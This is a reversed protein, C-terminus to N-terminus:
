YSTCNIFNGMTACNTTTMPPIPNTYQAQPRNAFYQMLAASSQRREAAAANGRAIETNMADEREKAMVLKAEADTMHGARQQEAVYDGTAIFTARTDPSSAIDGVGVRVCPWSEEFTKLGARCETQIQSLTPGQAQQQACGALAAVMLVSLSKM